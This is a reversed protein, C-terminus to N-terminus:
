ISVSRLPRSDKKLWVRLLETELFVYLRQLFYVRREFGESVKHTPPPKAWLTQINQEKHTTTGVTRAWNQGSWSQGEAKHCQQWPLMCNIWVWLRWTVVEQFVCISKPARQKLRIPNMGSLEPAIPVDPQKFLAMLMAHPKDSYMHSSTIDRRSILSTTRSFDYHMKASPCPWSHHINPRKTGNQLGIYLWVM